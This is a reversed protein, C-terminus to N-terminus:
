SKRTYGKARMCGFAVEHLTVAAEVGNRIGASAVRAQTNCEAKDREFAELTKDPHDFVPPSACGTLLVAIAIVYRMACAYAM